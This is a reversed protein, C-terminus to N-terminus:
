TRKEDPISVPNTPYEAPLRTMIGFSDHKKFELICYASCGTFHETGFLLM